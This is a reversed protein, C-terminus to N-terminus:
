LVSGKTRRLDLLAEITCPGKNQSLIIMKDFWNAEIMTKLVPKKLCDKLDKGHTTCLIGVGSSLVEEIAYLDAQSGIEDVAIVDPAMSRLLMKMGEVKPCRDLVDTRLGLDNQPMGRYCGAIESREDVVGVTYPGYGYLGNSLSRIIDRLLTTKGCKPPSVILTHCIGEKTVLHPVINKSCGIVQHAIRINMASIHKLTKLQNKEVVMEGVFGIRHGGEITMFGQRLDDDMAYLSFGNILKLMAKVDIEQVKYAKSIDVLGRENVGYEKGGLQVMLPGNVRIRIEQLTELHMGVVKEMMQRITLPFIELISKDGM